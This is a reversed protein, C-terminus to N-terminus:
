FCDGYSSNKGEDFSIKNIIKKLAKESESFLLNSIKEEKMEECDKLRDTFTKESFTFLVSVERCFDIYEDMTEFVFKPVKYSFGKYYKKEEEGLDSPDFEVTIM